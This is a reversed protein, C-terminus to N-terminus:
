EYPTTPLTQHTYSVPTREVRGLAGLAFIIPYLREYYWLNAFYFGIPTAEDLGGGAIRELLWESGASIARHARDDAHEHSAIAHLALSTEEISAPTNPAGGWGGDANQAALLAEVGRRLLDSTQTAAGSVGITQLAEVVRATGYVPNENEHAHQCGFWLPIWSGDARQTARLFGLARHTAADIRGALHPLRPTWAHWAKLAHATLDSGSRDFPLKGWGRCFTPMGGDRNQLNLLWEVGAAAANLTEEDVAEASLHHLALLAGPTDAADPVGGPLDTWAWGGPAADTYAHVERYQQGLLWAAIADRADGSLDSKADVGDYLSKVALTTVWTALDCVIPWSGDDLVANELVRGAAETAPHNVQGSAAISMTVFSTLPVAELFGGSSPQIESLLDLTRRQTLWRAGRAM